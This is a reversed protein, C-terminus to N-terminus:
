KRRIRLDDEKIVQIERGGANGGIKALYFEVGKSTEQGNIAIVGTYPLLLGIKIPPRAAQGSVAVPLVLLPLLALALRAIWRM